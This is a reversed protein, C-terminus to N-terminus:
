PNVIIKQHTLRPFEKIYVEYEGPKTFTYNFASLTYKLFSSSNNWLGEESVVTLYYAANTVSRWKVTDGANITLTRNTYSSSGNIKIVKRFGYLEDVDAIYFAQTRVPTPTPQPTTAVVTPVATPTATPTVIVTPTPTGTQKQDVCGLFIM